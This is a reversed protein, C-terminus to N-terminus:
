GLTVVQNFQKENAAHLQHTVFIVTLEKQKLFSDEVKLASEEDLSSTGEDVLLVQRHRLVGRAIALRQRQGGSFLRGDEGVPTDLGQPLNAVFEALDAKTLADHIEADTFHDGMTLNERVTGNFVYPMQDVYLVKDRLSNGAISNLPKGAVLVNGQYGTLKGDLINLLTSKGVGSPGVIAVKEGPTIVLSMPKLAPAASGPYQYSVQQLAIDVSTDKGITGHSEGGAPGVYKEFVPKVSKFQALVPGFSALNVFITGALSGTSLIAGIPILNRLILVGSWGIMALQSVISALQGLMTLQAITTNQRVKLGALEQAPKKIQEVLKNQVNLAFLTDFGKLLSQVKELFAENGKTLNMNARQMKKAGLQPLVITLFALFLAVAILSWHFSLLAASAFLTDSGIQVVNFFNDFGQTEILNVDNTLWSGYTGTDYRHFFAYGGATINRTIDLRLDLSMKQMLVGELYMTLLLVGSFVVYLTINLIIFKLFLSVNRQVLSNLVYTNM